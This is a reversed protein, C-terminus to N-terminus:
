LYPSDVFNSLKWTAKPVNIKKKPSMGRPRTNTIKINQPIQPSLKIVNMSIPFLKTSKNVTMM